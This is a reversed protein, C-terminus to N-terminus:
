YGFKGMPKSVRGDSVGRGFGSCLGKVTMPLQAIAGLVTDGRAYRPTQESTVSAKRRAESPVGAGVAPATHCKLSKTVATPM